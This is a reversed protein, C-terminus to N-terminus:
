DTYKTLDGFFLKLNLQTIMYVSLAVSITLFISAMKLHRKLVTKTKPTKFYIFVTAATALPSLPIYFFVPNTTIFFKQFNHLKQLADAGLMNPGIVVAEYLNGFFWMAIGFLAFRLLNCVSKGSM